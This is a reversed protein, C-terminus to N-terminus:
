PANSIQVAYNDQTMDPVYSVTVINEGDDSYFVKYLEPSGNSPDFFLPDVDVSGVVNYTTDSVLSIASAAIAVWRKAESSHDAWVVSPMAGFAEVFRMDLAPDDSARLVHGGAVVLRTGAENIWINGGMGYHGHYVSDRRFINEIDSVTWKEIDSPSVGRDASYFKGGNPHMRLQGGAYSGYRSVVRDNKFDIAYLDVWQDRRPLMYAIARDDIVIDGWDAAVFQEDIVAPQEGTLDILSASGSHSVAVYDGNPSIDLQEGIQSLNLIQESFDDLNRIRLEEKDSVTYIIQNRVKNYVIDTPKGLLRLQPNEGAEVVHVTITEPATATSGDSTVLTFVYDGAVLPQFGITPGDLVPLVLSSLEPEDELAWAYTITDGESDYSGSADISVDVGVIGALNNPVLTTPPYDLLERAPFSRKLLAFNNPNTLHDSVILRVMQGDPETFVSIPSSPNGSGPVIEPLEVTNIYKGSSASYINLQSVGGRLEVLYIENRAENFSADMITGKLDLQRVFTMDTSRDNSTRLVVGSAAIIFDGSESIWLNGSFPFDGHYPSDYAGNMAGDVVDYREIDSPFSGRDAGYIKVGNPHMRMITGARISLGSASVDVGTEPDISYGYVWQDRVPIIHSAGNNDVVLDGPSERTIPWPGFVTGDSVRIVTLADLHAAAVWEGNPSVALHIITQSLNFAFMENADADLISLQNEDSTAIVSGTADVEVYTVRNKIPTKGFEAVSFRVLESTTDFGDSVDVRLEFDGEVDFSLDLVSAEFSSALVSNSPASTVHWTYTLAHGNEDTSGTANLVVVEGIALNEAVDDVVVIPADNSLTLEIVDVSQGGNGDDVLLEILYAGPVDSILKTKAANPDEITADAQDPQEVITWTFDLSSGEPDSSQSADLESGTPSVQMDLDPGADATPSENVAPPPSAPPPSATGGGGGCSIVGLMLVSLFIRRM